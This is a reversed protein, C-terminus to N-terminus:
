STSATRTAEANYNRGIWFVVCRVEPGPYYDLIANRVAARNGNAIQAM